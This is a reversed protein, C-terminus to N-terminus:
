VLSGGGAPREVGPLAGRDGGGPGLDARLPPEGSKRRELGCGESPRLEPSDSPLFELHIGERMRLKKATHGGVDDLVVLLIRKRDGAGLERVFSELAVSFAEANVAEGTKPRAFAYCTPGSTVSISPLVRIPELVNCKPPTPRCCLVRVLLRRDERTLLHQPKAKCVRGTRIMRGRKGFFLGHGFGISGLHICPLRRTTSARLAQQTGSLHRLPHARGEVARTM